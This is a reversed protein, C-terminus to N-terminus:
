LRMTVRVFYVVIPSQMRKVGFRRMEDFMGLAENGHGHMAFGTIMTNWSVLSRMCNMSNFVSRANEVSGCKAYMDMVANCVQVNGDLGEERVYCHVDKGEGLAGLQSCTSLAGLVTVENRKLGQVGM